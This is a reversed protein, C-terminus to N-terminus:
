RIVEIEIGLSLSQWAKDTTYVKAKRDMALALCARDGLSLGYPRTISILEATARAQQETFPCAVCGLSLIQKWISVPAGGRRMMRAHVESLNVTSVLGGLLLPAVTMYGPEYLLVALMASSDFVAREPL